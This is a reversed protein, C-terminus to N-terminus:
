GSFRALAPDGGAARAPEDLGFVLRAVLEVSAGPLDGGVLEALRGREFLRDLALYRLGAVANGRERSLDLFREANQAAWVMAGRPAPVQRVPALRGAADLSQALAILADTRPATEGACVHVIRRGGGRRAAARLARLLLAGVVDRPLVDIRGSGFSPMLGGPLDGWRDALLYLSNRRVTAGTTSSGVLGGIRAVLLGLGDDCAAPAGLVAEEGHWKSQEYRTRRGDPGLRAEPVSGTRGGAVHVSSALCYFACRGSRARLRRACELGNLAGLANAAFLRRDPATWDVEAALNVVGDVEPALREFNADSLGWVPEAVDGEVTADALARSAFTRAVREAASRRAGRRAVPVLEVSAAAAEALGHGLQGTLGAVLIKV